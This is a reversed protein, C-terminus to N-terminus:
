ITRTDSIRARAQPSLFIANGWRLQGNKTRKLNYLNFLTYGYKEIFSCLEGFMCGGEYHPVFMVETYILNVAHRSLIDCAGSLARLEAGEIDLKLIDIREINARNCFHDITTTDVEVEGINEANEPYYRPGCLPRSFFSNCTLDANVYLKTKGVHDSFAMQYPHVLKDTSLSELKQFSDAFPEFCYVTACHFIERYIKTIDGVFAGVDFIILNSREDFFLRQANFANEVQSSKGGCRFVRMLGKISVMHMSEM